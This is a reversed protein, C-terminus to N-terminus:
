AIDQLLALTQAPDRAQAAKLDRKLMSAWIYAGHGLSIDPGGKKAAAIAEEFEPCDEQFDPCIFINAATKKM